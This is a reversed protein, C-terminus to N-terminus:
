MVVQHQRIRQFYGCAASISGGNWVPISGKHRLYGYTKDFESKLLGSSLHEGIADMCDIGRRARITKCGCFRNCCRFPRLFLFGDTALDNVAPLYYKPSEDFDEDM